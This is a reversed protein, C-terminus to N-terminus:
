GTHCAPYPSLGPCMALHRRMVAALTVEGAGDLIRGRVSIPHTMLEIPSALHRPSLESDSASGFWQTTWFGYSRIRRNIVYKAASAWPTLGGLNRSIRIAPVRLERLATCVVELLGLRTHVHHHADAHTPEIGHERIRKVQAAVEDAVIARDSGTLRTLHPVHGHFLGERDCVARLRQVQATIPRGQTLNVHVGVRKGCGYDMVLQCAEEFGPMNAMLTASSILGSAFAAMIGANAECSLGLDGANVILM